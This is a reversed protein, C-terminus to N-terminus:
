VLLLAILAVAGASWATASLGLVPLLFLSGALSGACGGVLDAAYLPVIAAQQDGVQLQSAYAFLGGVLSGAALLLLGAVFLSGGEPSGTSWATLLSLGAVGGLCAAGWGQSLQGNRRWGLRDASLAGLGLGAMFLTLLLGLDQYLVGQRTQYGLLLVGELLMGAFGAAAALLARRWAPTRRGLLVAVVWGLLPLSLWGGLDPLALLGLAPFFRSLWLVWTYQYCVPRLDTNAPAPTHQLFGAIQATRDNTLLYRLYEPGVLRTCLQRQRWRASLRDPNRELPADAALVVNTTGPLVLVDTFVAALSHHISAARRKLAPTWLNEASRLRFALVGGPNLHDRCQAFFERTYFRNAQGSAPDPMGVLVLDYRPAQGLFRRPDAAALRVSPHRLSQREEASLHGSLLDLFAADLEVADVRDPRYALLQHVLGEAAGGLVLASRLDAVQLAALHAFEEAATTQSVYALAGDHFVALQGAESTLTVRGYPTDRTALLGPHDLRTLWRDVGASGALGVLLVCSLSAAAPVLWVPPRRPWPVVAALVALLASVLGAALNPMGWRLLLTALVGGFLGGASEVAYAAALTSTGGVYLGATRQFLLGLLGGFPLLVLAIGALQQGFPLYAGPTGAFVLRLSRVLVLLLPFAAAFALYLLRVQSASSPRLHRGALVGLATALLLFGFALLYILESGFSAVLLERLLVVQGLISVVGLAALWVVPARGATVDDATILSM